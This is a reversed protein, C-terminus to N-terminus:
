RVLARPNGGDGTVSLCNHTINNVFNSIVRQDTNNVLYEVMQDCNMTALEVVQATSSTLGSLAHMCSMVENGKMTPPQRASKLSTILGRM